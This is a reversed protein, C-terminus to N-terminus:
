GFCYPQIKSKQIAPERQNMYFNTVFIFCQPKCLFHDRFKKINFGVLNSIM